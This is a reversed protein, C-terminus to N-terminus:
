TRGGEVPRRLTELFGQPDSARSVATGVLIGDVGAEWFRRAEDPGGVGSMGLLPRCARAARITEEGTSRHIELTDLDRVNVGYVDAPVDETQRLEARDHWELLVELGRDHAEAALRRLPVKLWGETELRAILLVASAGARAAADLQVPELVFDKFLVPRPTQRVMAAVDSPAGGFEPRAALCSYADVAAAPTALVFEDIPRAGLDPTLAGPSRRKYEAVIAGRASAAVLAARFSPRRDMRREPLGALYDSQSISRRTAAVMRELFGM